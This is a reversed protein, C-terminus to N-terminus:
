SQFVRSGTCAGASDNGQPMMLGSAVNLVFPTVLDYQNGVPTNAYFDTWARVPLGGVEMDGSAGTVNTVTDTVRVQAGDDVALGFGANGSGGVATLIVAVPGTDVTLANGASDNISVNTLNWHGYDAHIADGTSGQFLVNQLGWNSGVPAFFVGSTLTPCTDDFVTDFFTQLIAAIYFYSQALGFNMFLSRTVLGPVPELDYSTTLTTSLISLGNPTNISILGDIVCLEILPLDANGLALALEGSPAVFHIGQLAIANIGWSSIGWSGVTPSSGIFTASPEVIQLVEGTALVLAGNGGNFSGADNCLFLHTADSGYIVCNANDSTSSLVTRIIQKGKLANAAWSSRPTSITLTVLNTVPDSSVVAGDAAAITADAPSLLTTLQPFARITVGDYEQFFPVPSATTFGVSSTQIVPLQYDVPFTETIGTVDIIYSAGPAPISPVDRIARQFTQYPTALSGNGTVDSGSPRAYITTTSVAFAPTPVANAAPGQPGQPGQPGEHGRPGRRGREALAGHEGDDCSGRATIGGSGMIKADAM